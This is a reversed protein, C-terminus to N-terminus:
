FICLNPNSFNHDNKSKSINVVVRSSDLSHDCIICICSFYSVIVGLKSTTAEWGIGRGYMYLKERAIDLVDDVNPLSFPGFDEGFYKPPKYAEDKDSFPSWKGTYTQLGQM